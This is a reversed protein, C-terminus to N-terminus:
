KRSQMLKTIGDKDHMDVIVLIDMAPKVESHIYGNGGATIYDSYLENFAEIEMRTVQMLPNREPSTYYRFSQLIRDRLSNRSRRKSDEEMKDLRQISAEQQEEVKELREEIKPIKEVAKLITKMQDATKADNKIKEDLYTKFKNFVMLLFGLAICWQVITSVTIDGFIALFEDMGFLEKRLSLM